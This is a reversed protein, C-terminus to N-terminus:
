KIEKAKAILFEKNNRFFSLMYKYQNETLDGGKEVFGAEELMEQTLKTANEFTLPTDKLKDSFGDQSLDDGLIYEPAVGLYKSIFLIRASSPKKTRGSKLESLFSSPLNLDQEMDKRTKGIRELTEM